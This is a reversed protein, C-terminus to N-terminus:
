EHLLINKLGDQLVTECEEEMIENDHKKEEWFADDTFDQLPFDFTANLRIRYNDLLPIVHAPLNLEKYLETLWDIISNYQLISIYFRIDCTKELYYNKAFYIFKWHIFSIM